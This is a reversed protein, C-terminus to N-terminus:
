PLGLPRYCLPRNFATLGNERQWAERQLRSAVRRPEEGRKLVHPKNDGGNGKEDCLWLAGDDIYFHCPVTEGLDGPAGSPQAVVCWFSQVEPASRASVIEQKSGVQGWRM